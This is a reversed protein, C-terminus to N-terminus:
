GPILFETAAGELRAEIPAPPRPPSDKKKPWLKDDIHVGFGTWEIALRRGRRSPLVALREREDQWRSLYELLRAREAESVMVVEFSGDGPRSEPALFLNPGVTPINLAELLLYRGSIDAGDLAAALEVPAAREVARALRELADDVRDEARANAQKIRKGDRGLLAPFLGVGVGELFQRRGWPGEAVGVDLKVRRPNEWGRVIRELVADAIGLARSINNATGLPLPAVAIGRGVMRRAVRSVTGDGGAVAVLDAPAELAKDWHEERSSQYRVEHGRERLLRTLTGADAKGQGAGPNHILTVRVSNARPM